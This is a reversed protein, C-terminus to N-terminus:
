PLLPFSLFAWLPSPLGQLIGMSCPLETRVGPECKKCVIRNSSDKAQGILMVSCSRSAYIGGPSSAVFEDDLMSPLGFSIACSAKLTRPPFFVLLMLLRLCFDKGPYNRRSDFGVTPLSRPALM